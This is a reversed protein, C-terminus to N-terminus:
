RPLHNSISLDADRLTAAQLVSKRLDARSLNVNSLRAGRLRIERLDAEHLDIIDILNSESLFQIVSAKRKADLRNLVTLARARAIDRIEDKESSKRLNKELLLESMKDLYDQFAIERQSELALARVSQTRVEATRQESRSLVFNFLLVGGALVAPVILLQMWDWLTKTPFGTWGWAFWYGAFIFLAILM